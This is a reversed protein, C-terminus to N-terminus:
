YLLISGATNQISGRHATSGPRPRSIYRARPPQAAAAATAPRAQGIVVGAGNSSSSNSQPVVVGAEGQIPEVMFACVNPDKELYAELADLDDGQILDNMKALFRERYAAPSM